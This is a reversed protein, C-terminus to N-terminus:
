KNRENVKKVAAIAASVSALSRFQSRYNQIISVGEIAVDYIKWTNQSTKKLYVVVNSGKSESGKKFLVGTVQVNKTNPSKWDASPRLPNFKLEYDGVQAINKSYLLVLMNMFGTIFEKKDQASASNWKKGLMNGAIDDLDM